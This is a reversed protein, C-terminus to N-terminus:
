RAINNMSKVEDSKVESDVRYPVKAKVLDNGMLRVGRTKNGKVRLFVSTGEAAKSDRIAADEVQNLVIAPMDAGLKAQRGGFGQIELGNVDEVNLASQWKGSEPKDWFVEVDKLKLNVGAPVYPGRLDDAHTDYTIYYAGVRVSNNLRDDDARACLALTAALTGFAITAIRAIM